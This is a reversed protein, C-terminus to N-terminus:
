YAHYHGRGVRQSVWPQHYTSYDRAGSLGLETAVNVYGEANLKGMGTIRKITAEDGIWPTRCYVCRVEGTKTAAWQEFCQRHLNNGCAARCWIVNDHDEFEMMCVPCDGEVPKRTGASSTSTGSGDSSQPTVPANAFIQRLEDSLFALQYALHEPAKLINVM